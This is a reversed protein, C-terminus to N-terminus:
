AAQLVNRVAGEEQNGPNPWTLKKPTETPDVPPFWAMLKWKELIKLVGASFEQSEQPYQRTRPISKTNPSSSVLPHASPTPEKISRQHPPPHPIQFRTFLSPSDINVIQLYSRLLMNDRPHMLRALPLLTTSDRCWSILILIFTYNIHNM